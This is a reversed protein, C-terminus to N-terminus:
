GEAAMWDSSGRSECGQWGEIVQLPREDSFLERELDGVRLDIDDIAGWLEDQQDADEIGTICEGLHTVLRGDNDAERANVNVVALCFLILVITILILANLNIRKM